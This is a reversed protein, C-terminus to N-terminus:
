GLFAMGKSTPIFQSGPWGEAREAYDGSILSKFDRKQEDTAKTLDYEGIDCLLAIQFDTLDDSM